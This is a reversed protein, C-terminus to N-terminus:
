QKELFDVLKKVARARHSIRNKIDLSMEAFTTQYGNPLFIPDYGFGQVGRRQKTITGSVEGEFYYEKKNLILCIVTKFKAKRNSKNKLEQLLKNVNDDFTAQPGAYRASVVGPAGGLADVELGTDDSFCDMSYKNFITQSKIQANQNLTDFPEAIDRDFGIDKLSLIDFRNQLYNKVEDLKHANNTAFVIKKRLM